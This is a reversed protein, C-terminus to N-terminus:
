GRVRCLCYVFEQETGWPTHHIECDHAVRQFGDGFEAHIEDPSYRAVQLGSCREPGRPGFTAILVHGDPKVAGRVARVYRRRAAEETLFHFVARDHWFDFHHAPLEMDTIDGVLWTVAAAQAGLRAKAQALAVESLDLVTLNRFGLALLDDVLTSSGGGVDLLAADAGLCAGQIFRLSCELHPRYWSVAEPGKGRYIKDWHERDGM